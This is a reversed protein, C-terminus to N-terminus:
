NTVDFRALGHASALPSGDGLEGSFEGDFDLPGFFTDRRETLSSVLQNSDVDQSETVVRYRPTGRLNTLSAEVSIPQDSAVVVLDRTHVEDGQAEISGTARVFGRNPVEAMVTDLYLTGRLDLPDTTITIEDSRLQGAPHYEELAPVMEDWGTLDFPAITGVIRTKPALLVRASAKATGIQLNM